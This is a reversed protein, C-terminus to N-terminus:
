RAKYDSDDLKLDDKMYDANPMRQSNADDVTEEEQPQTEDDDSVGARKAILAEQKAAKNLVTDQHTQSPIDMDEVGDNVWSGDSDDDRRRKEDTTGGDTSSEDDTDANSNSERPQHYSNAQMEAELDTQYPDDQAFTVEDTESADNFLTDTEPDSFSIDKSSQSDQENNNRKDEDESSSYKTPAQEEIDRSADKFDEEPDFGGLADIRFPKKTLKTVYVRDSDDDETAVIESGNATLAENSQLM